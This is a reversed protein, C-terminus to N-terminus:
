LVGMAMRMVLMMLMLVAPIFGSANRVTMRMLMHRNPMVVRMKRINMMTVRM